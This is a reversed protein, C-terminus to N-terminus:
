GDAALQACSLSLVDALSWHEVAPSRWWGICLLGGAVCQALVSYAVPGSELTLLSPALSETQYHISLKLTYHCRTCTTLTIQCLTADRCSMPPKTMNALHRWHAGRYLVHKRPGV